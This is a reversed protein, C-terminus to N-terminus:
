NIINILRFQLFIDLNDYFVIYFNIKINNNNNIM